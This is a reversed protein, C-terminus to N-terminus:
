KNNWDDSGDEPIVNKLATIACEIMSDEPEKTTIRQLWIGPASIIRTFINDHKGALKILERAVPHSPFRVGVTDLGGSVVEPIISTKPAIM